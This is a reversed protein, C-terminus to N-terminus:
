SDYMTINGCDYIIILKIYCYYAKLAKLLRKNDIAQM